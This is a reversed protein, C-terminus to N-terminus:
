ERLEHVHIITLDFEMHLGALPHNGDLVVSDEAVEVVTWIKINGDSGLLDFQMGTKVPRMGAFQSKPVRKLLSEQFEGFAEAPPLTVQIHEGANKGMMVREVGPMMHGRGQLYTITEPKTFDKLYGEKDKFAYRITVMANHSIPM